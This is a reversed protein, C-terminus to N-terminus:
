VRFPSLSLGHFYRFDVNFGTYLNRLMEKDGRV